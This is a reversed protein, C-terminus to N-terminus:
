AKKPLCPPQRLLHVQLVIPIMRQKLDHKSIRFVWHWGLAAVRDESRKAPASEATTAVRHRTSSQRASDQSTRVLGRM